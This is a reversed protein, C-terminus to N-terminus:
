SSRKDRANKVALKQIVEPHAKAVTGVEQLRATALALKTKLENYRFRVMSQVVAESTPLFPLSLLEDFREESSQIFDLRGLRKSNSEVVFVAMQTQPDRSVALLMRKLLNPVEPFDVGLTEGLTLVFEHELLTCSYHFFLDTESSLEVRVAQLDSDSGQVLVKVSLAELTGVQQPGEATDQTRLEFPADMAFALRYNSALSPDTEDNFGDIYTLVTSAEMATAM